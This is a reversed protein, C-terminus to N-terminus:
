KENKICSAANTKPFSLKIDVIWFEPVAEVYEKAKFEVKAICYM